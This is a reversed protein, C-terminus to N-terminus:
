SKVKNNIVMSNRSVYWNNLKYFIFIWIVFHVSWVNDGFLYDMLKLEGFISFYEIFSLVIYVGILIWLLSKKAFSVLMLILPNTKKKQSPYKKINQYKHPFLANDIAIFIKDQIIGILVILLVVAFVKDVRGQRQGVRYIMTGLGEQSAIGEAVIIYTWSIATLVRVDDMVRSIVSPIYVTRITQWKNAGLTYVTKLYVDKVEDIRQIVVPLLYIMIGFALFHVKMNTGIGFWMIFLGTVATLPIFRLANTYREFAGRFLPLLGIVFGIPIALMIAEVYGSLNLGVSRFTKKVLQNDSYLEGYASFVRFPSPLIGQNVIPSTGATLLIWCGFIFVFGGLQLPLTQKATLKKRLEFLWM